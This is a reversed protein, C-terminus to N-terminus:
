VTTVTDDELQSRLNTVPVARRNRTACELEIQLSSFSKAERLCAIIMIARPFLHHDVQLKPESSERKILTPAGKGSSCFCMRVLNYDRGPNKSM